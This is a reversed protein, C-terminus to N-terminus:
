PDFTRTGRITVSLDAPSSASSVTIVLDSEDLVENNFLFIETFETTTASLAGGPLDNGGVSITATCSGSTTVVTIEDITGPVGVRPFSYAKNSPNEILVSATWTQTTSAKGSEFGAADSVLEKGQRWLDRFFRNWVPDIRGSSDIVRSSPEPPQVTM